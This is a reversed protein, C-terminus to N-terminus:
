LATKKHMYLTLAENSNIIADINGVVTWTGGYVSSFFTSSSSTAFEISGVPLDVKKASNAPGGASSSGAYNHTHSTPAANIQTRFSEKSINGIHGASTYVPIYSFSTASSEQYSITIPNQNNSDLIAKAKGVPSVGNIIDNIKTHVYNLPQTLKNATFQTLFEPTIAGDITDMTPNDAWKFLKTFGPTTSNGTVHGHSTPAYPHTHSAPAAGIAAPTINVTKAAGGNFTFKNTGEATGGNLQLTLAHPSAQATPINVTVAGSGDYTATAAGTFKLAYPNPLKTPLGSIQGATHGHSTPAYPHTHSAPAKNNLQTQVSSTVGKMFNLEAATATVGLASLSLPVAKWTGDGCMFHSTNGDLAKMFGNSSTSALNHSHSTPAYGSHTHSAPAAGISAPTININKAAGGNFTFKNTGESTGGNLQVTLAHPSAQATPINVTVAGSGDYTATAAGTFKLAYPNPLKTPLGTVQGATHTHSTPAAGIVNRLDTPSITGIKTANVWVPFWSATSVQPDQYSINIKAGNNSDKIQSASSANGIFGKESEVTNPFIARKDYTYKYIHGSKAMESPYSWYTSGIAYIDSVELANSFEKNENLSGISFTLRISGTNSTQNEGGGFAIGEFWISNWGSWGEIPYTGVTEYNTISEILSKEVLCTCGLAGSTSVNILLKDLSTYLEMTQPNLTIRLKDKITIGSTVGGIYYSHGIGSVLAIKYEDTDNYPSWSEGGNRSYEVKIGAPNAFAFRNSSHVNSIAQDISTVRGATSGGFRIEKDSHNHSSAAAGIVAPTINVEKVVSGDYTAAATGNTKITLAYPNPLKTPLGTIQSTNHTHSIPAKSNLADTTAKQTMAGDTAQGSAGYLKVSSSLKNVIRIPIDFVPATSSGPDSNNYSRINFLYEITEFSRGKPIIALASQWQKQKYWLEVKNHTSDVNKIGAIFNSIDVDNTSINVISAKVDSFVKANLQNAHIDLIFSFNIGNIIFQQHVRRYPEREDSDVELIKVYRTGAESYESVTALPADSAGYVWESSLEVIQADSGTYVVQKNPSGNKNKITLSQPNPLRTPLGTIDAATIAAWAESGATAGAKLYKGANTTGTAPVHHNGDGTPHKYPAGTALPDWKTGTYVYSTSNEKVFVRLGATAAKLTVLRDREAITDVQQRVDLLAEAQLKFPSAVVIGKKDEFAM